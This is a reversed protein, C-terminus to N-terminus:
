FETVPKGSFEETGLGLQKLRSRLGFSRLDDSGFWRQSRLEVPSKRAIGAKM